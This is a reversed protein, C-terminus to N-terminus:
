PRHGATLVAVSRVGAKLLERTCANVTAGTTFVDDVLVVNEGGMSARVGFAGRVNARRGARGLGTQSADHRLRVLSKTDLVPGAGPKWGMADMFAKALLIAQNFGRKRLGKDTMPVPLIRHPIVSFYRDFTMAMMRGLPAALDTRGQYKFRHIIDMLNGEFHCAARAMEFAPPHALCHGCAHEGEGTEFPLGCIRCFPQVLPPLDKACPPCFFPTLCSKEAGGDPWDLPERCLRCAHPLLGRGLLRSWPFVANKM